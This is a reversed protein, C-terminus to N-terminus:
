GAPRFVLGAIKGDDGLAIFWDTAANEFTVRYHQAGQVEGQHELTQLAGFGQIMPTISAEGARVAEALEPGMDDYNPTGAQMAAITTRLMTEEASAETQAHAAHDGHNDQAMAAAPVLTLAAAFLIPKM